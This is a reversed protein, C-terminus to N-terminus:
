ITKREKVFGVHQRYISRVRASPLIGVRRTPRSTTLFVRTAYLDYAVVMFSLDGGDTYLVYCAYLLHTYITDGRRSRSSCLRFVHTCTDLTREFISVDIIYRVRTREDTRTRAAPLSCSSSSLGYAGGELACDIVRNNNDDATGVFADMIIPADLARTFRLSDVAGRRFVWVRRPM